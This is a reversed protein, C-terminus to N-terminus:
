KRLSKFAGMKRDIRWNRALGRANGHFNGLLVEERGGKKEVQNGEAPNIYGKSGVSSTPLAQKVGKRSTM